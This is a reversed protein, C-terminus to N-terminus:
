RFQAPFITGGNPMTSTRPLEVTTGDATIAVPVRPLKKKKKKKNKTKKTGSDIIVRGLKLYRFREPYLITCVVEIWNIHLEWQPYPM